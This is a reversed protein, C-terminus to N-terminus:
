APGPRPGARRGPRNGLGVRALMSAVEVAHVPPVLCADAGADLAAKVLADHASPVLVLLPAGTRRTPNRRSGNRRPPAAAEEPSGTSFVGWFALFRCLALTKEPEERVQVVLLDAAGSNWDRILSSATAGNVTEIEWEPLAERLSVLSAADLDFVCVKLRQPM